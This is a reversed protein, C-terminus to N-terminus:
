PARMELLRCACAREANSAGARVAGPLGAYAAPIWGRRGREPGGEIEVHLRVFDGGEPDYPATATGLMLLPTRTALSAAREVPVDLSRYFPAGGGFGGAVVLRIGPPVVPVLRDLRAYAPRPDGPVRVRVVNEAPTGEITVRVGVPAGLADSPRANQDDPARRASARSRTLAAEPRDDMSWTAEAVYAARGPQALLWPPLATLAGLTLVFATCLM